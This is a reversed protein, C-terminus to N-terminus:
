MPMPINEEKLEYVVGARAAQRGMVGDISNFRLQNAIGTGTEIGDRRNKKMTNKLSNEAM